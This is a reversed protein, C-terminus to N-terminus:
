SSVCEDVLLAPSNHLATQRVTTTFISCPYPNEISLSQLKCLEPFARKHHIVIQCLSESVYLTDAVLSDATIYSAHMRLFAHYECQKDLINSLSAVLASASEEDVSANNCASSLDKM